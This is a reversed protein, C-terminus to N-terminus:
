DFTIEVQAEVWNDDEDKVWGQYEFYSDVDDEHVHVEFEPLFVMEDKPYDKENYECYLVDDVMHYEGTHSLYIISDSEDYVMEGNIVVSDRKLFRDQEVECYFTNSIHTTYDNYDLYISDHIDICEDTYDDYVISDDEEDNPEDQAYHDYSDGEFNRINGAYDWYYFTDMYPIISFDTDMDIQVDAYKVEGNPFIWPSSCADQNKKHAWGNSHAYQKFAETVHDNAYIRDLWKKGDIDAWLLARGRSKESNPDKLIVMECNYNEAYFRTATQCAGSHRMCSSGMTGLNFTHDYNDGLYYKTIDKGRVILFEGETTFFAKLKNVIIELEKNIIVKPDVGNEVLLKRLVKGYNGSQRNEKTWTNPTTSSNILSEKGKPLFTMDGNQNITLNKIGKGDAKTKYVKFFMPILSNNNISLLKEMLSVSIYRDQLAIGSEEISM